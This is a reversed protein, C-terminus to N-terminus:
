YLGLVQRVVCLMDAFKNQYPRPPRLVTATPFHAALRRGPHVLVQRGSFELLPIDAPSDSYSWCGAREEPTLTALGPVDREMNPIKQQKKNNAGSLHPILPMPDEIVLPTAICHDFGLVRAIDAPYICPSATNLVLARGERRHREIEGVLEPYCRQRADTEAFERAYRMLREKPMRWLFALFACKATEVDVLRLAYLAAVPLFVLHMLTRWRERRLVFNCFLAQTDHPLLTHDLDFIAYRM